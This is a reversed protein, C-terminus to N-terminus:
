RTTAVVNNGECKPEYANRQFWRQQECYEQLQHRFKPHAVEILSEARQRITRGHLYAAGYETVVYHVDARGTLVGAGHALRPVIRSITEGKATSPLAIIPKGYKARAAGRIFDLQGGFGSYFGPGISEACVQGTLDIEIASNIAVMRDNMAVRFPDNTYASPHFEFIPNEDIFDFLERTGLVFGLIIKRPKLNKRRGNIVGAEILPIVNDSIMETHIGLDKRDMLNPLIADPIAGIGCQLVSGDEILSAVRVGIQQYTQNSAQKKLECLPRSLEVIADLENVHIFSDGYTRPMQANVQAVVRHAYKAATLTCEVGVGFSCYGHPDPPSVQIFAVDIPMEGSEFLPEVESLFIPTYDARGDNVAERVNGGVFLANHRFHPAMEPACYPSTGLTMLHLLEVDTVYPARGILAEVLAEPEACGPHIYVRMGSEVCAVAERATVLKERYHDIWTM